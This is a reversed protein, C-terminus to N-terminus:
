YIFEAVVDNKMGRIWCRGDELLAAERVELGTLDNYVTTLADSVAGGNSPQGLNNGDGSYWAIMKVGMGAAIVSHRLVQTAQAQRSEDNWNTGDLAGHETDYMPIDEKGAAKLTAKMATLAEWYEVPDATPRTYYHFGYGDLHDILRTGETDEAILVSLSYPHATEKQWDWVVMSPGILKPAGDARPVALRQMRHWEAHEQKTGVWYNKEEPIPNEPDPENNTDIYTLKSGYRAVLDAVYKRLKDYAAADKPAYQHGPWGPYAGPRDPHASLMKPTGNITMMLTRGAAAETDMVEDLLTWDRAETDESQMYGVDVSCWATAEAYNWLRRGGYPFPPTPSPEGGYDIEWAALNPWRHLHMGVFDDPVVAPTEDARLIWQRVTAPPTGPTYGEEPPENNDRKCAFLSLGALAIVALTKTM